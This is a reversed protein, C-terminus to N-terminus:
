LAADAGQPQTHFYGPLNRSGQQVPHAWCSPDSPHREGEWLLVIRGRGSGTPLPVSLRRGCREGRRLAGRTGADGKNCVLAGPCRVLLSPGLSPRSLQASRM